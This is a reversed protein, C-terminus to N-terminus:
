ARARGHSVSRDGRTDHPSGDIEILVGTLMPLANDRGAAVAVQGVATAFRGGDVTGAPPPLAPLAPFDEVPLSLLTFRAGGCSLLVVDGDSVLDVPQPPLSRAIEALLRGTVLARGPEAVAADAGVRASVDYDFCSLTLGYVSGEGAELLLGALIPIVPRTPLARAAWAVAEALADRGVRLRM